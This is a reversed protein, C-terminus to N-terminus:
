KRVEIGISPTWGWLRRSKPLEFKVNINITKWAGTATDLKYVGTAKNLNDLYNLPGVGGPTKNVPM